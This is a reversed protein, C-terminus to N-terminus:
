IATWGGDVVLCTGTVYSSNDSALYIAANAVDSPSCMRKIPNRNIYNSKFKKNFIHKNSKLDEVGGPSITNIRINYEGYYSAIQRSFNEIGGKIISYTFNEKINTNVYLKKDQAVLGYISSILIVSGKKNIQKLFKCFIYSLYVYSNLHIDINKRLSNLKIQEFNNKQWHKDKPYSANIFVSSEKHKKLITLFIKEVNTLNSVDFKIFLSKSNYKKLILEIKKGENVNNDLLLIKSGNKSFQQTQNRLNQM